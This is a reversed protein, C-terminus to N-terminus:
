NRRPNLLLQELEGVAEVMADPGSAAIPERDRYGWLVAITATGARRGAEIDSPSDGIMVAEHASRGLLRLTETVFAAEPKRCGAREPGVVARFFRGLGLGEVVQEAFATPKNTAVAIVREPALRELMEVIGSFPRTADLCHERYHARYRNLADGPVQLGSLAYAREIMVPTGDGLIDLLQSRSLAPLGDQGLIHSLSATLDDASDILAGDLDFLLTSRDRFM